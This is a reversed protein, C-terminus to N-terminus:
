LEFSEGESADSLPNREEEPSNNSRSRSHNNEKRKEERSKEEIPGDTSSHQEDTEILFGLETLLRVTSPVLAADKRSTSLARAIWAPDNPLNSGFRGRLRQCADLLYRQSYRLKSYAPHSDKDTWDQIYPAPRDSLLKQHKTWNKIALFRKPM